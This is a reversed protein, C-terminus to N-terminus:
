APEEGAPPAAGAVTVDAKEVLTDIVRRRFLDDRLRNLGGERKLEGKVQAVPRNEREAFSAIERDLDEDTVEIGEQRAVADFLINVKYQQEVRPRYAEKLRVEEDPPLGPKDKRAEEGIRELTSDVLGRPVDFPNLEVLRQVLNNELQRHSAMRAEVELNLRIRTRLDDATAEENGLIKRSFDDDLPPWIKEQVKAMTVHFHRTRGALEENPYDAPYTLPIKKMEGVVMGPLERSFVEPTEEHGLVLSVEVPDDEDLPKGEADIERYRIVAVDNGQAPRDVEELAANEDRLRDLVRDIQEAEIEPQERTLKLGEYGEVTIEPHVEVTATFSLPQGPQYQLNSVRPDGVIRLEHSRIADELARPVLSRLVEDELSEGLHKRAVDAPVKGKRFGPLTLRKRYENVVRDLEQGVTAAEVEIDLVRRWAPEEKITVKQTM